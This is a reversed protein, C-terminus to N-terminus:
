SPDLGKRSRGGGKAYIRVPQSRSVLKKAEDRIFRAAMDVRQGVTLRIKKVAEDGRWKMAM